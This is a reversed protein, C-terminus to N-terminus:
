EGNDQPDIRAVFGVTGVYRADWSRMVYLPAYPNLNLIAISVRDRDAEAQARQKIQELTM